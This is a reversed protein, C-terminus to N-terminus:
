RTVTTPPSTPLSLSVQYLCKITQISEYTGLQRAIRLAVRTLTNNVAPFKASFMGKCNDYFWQIENHHISKIEALDLLVDILNVFKVVTAFWNEKEALNM